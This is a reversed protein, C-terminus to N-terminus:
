RKRLIERDDESVDVIAYRQINTIELEDLIDVINQYKSDDEPKILVMLKENSRKALLVKRVGDKSFDTVNAEPGLGTYWFIKDREGLILNLVNDHSIPPPTGTHKEPMTLVMTTPKNFATTLIFFTLLLFALDVMPTMDIRTSSKKTRVKENSSNNGTTSSVEAM